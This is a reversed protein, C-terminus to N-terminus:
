NGSVSDVDGFISALRDQLEVPLPGALISQVNESLHEASGTGTLIVHAGPEHRCFRYAAQVVSSVDEHQEVFALPDEPDGLDRSIKGLDILGQVTKQLAEPQSLARRVAFMTLTGVNNKLTLPYVTKRASPNLLNFGVMIVDFHNDPLSQQFMRHSPDRGFTETVGLYRVKGAEQARRLAPLLEDVCHPYQEETVGHLHFVDVYDTGLRTLSKELSEVVAEGSLLDNGRGASSKTSIVVQDRKGKVAKGVAVETGYARATDIFNIGLSMAHEVIGAAHAESEGRAMGLRSHGGCGLGAVSVELGTRGLITTE